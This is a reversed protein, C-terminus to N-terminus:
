RTGENWELMQWRLGGGDDAHPVYIPGSCDTWHYQVLEPDPMMKIRPASDYGKSALWIPYYTSSAYPSFSTFNQQWNVTNWPERERIYLKRTVLRGVLKLPLTVPSKEILFQDFVAVLGTIETESGPKVKVTQGTLAPMRVPKTEGFLPPMEVPEFRVNAGRIEVTDRCFLTGRVSVNGELTSNGHRYFLGLPNTRPDPELIIGSLVEGLQPIEYVPGGPYIQYTSLNAPKVWDSAVEDIGMSTASCSLLQVALLFNTTGGQETSPFCVRGTFQRYDPHGQSPMRGLHLLYYYWASYYDPYNMGLTVRSQFRVKGTIQFPLDLETAERKTQYVTYGEMKSWDTPQNSLGRPILRMVAHVTCTSTRGTGRPDDAEGISHITVRYPMDGYEPSGPGLSADGATFSVTFREYAGLSRSTNTDVGTWDPAHMARVGYTLGTMAAQRALVLTDANSQIQVSTSQDRLVAYSVVMAVSVLLIVILVSM